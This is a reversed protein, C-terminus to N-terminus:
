YVRLISLLTKGFYKIKQGETEYMVSDYLKLKKYKVWVTFLRESLFGYVRKQLDTRNDLNIKKEVEDFISFLWECYENFLERKMVFMNKFYITRGSMVEDFSEVYDPYKKMIIKRCLDLDSSDHGSKYKTYITWKKSYTVKHPVIVDYNKLKDLIMNQNMIKFRNNTFFRRYHCLGIYDSKDHKWMWYIGTLECYNPNKHSINDGTSDLLIDKEKVENKKKGVMLKKYCDDLKLKTLDVEKHTIVYMTLKNKM